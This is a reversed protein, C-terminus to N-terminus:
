DSFLYERGVVKSPLVLCRWNTTLLVAFYSAIVFALVFWWIIRQRQVNRGLGRFFVLFSLKVCWLSTTLLFIAALQGHRWEDIKRLFDPPPSKRGRQVDSVFYLETKFHQWIIANALLM